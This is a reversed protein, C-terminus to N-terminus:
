EDTVTAAAAAVAVFARGLVSKLNVILRANSNWRIYLYYGNLHKARSEVWKSEIKKEETPKMTIGFINAFM